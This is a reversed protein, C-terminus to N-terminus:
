HEEHSKTGMNAEDWKRSQADFNGNAGSDRSEPLERSVEPARQRGNQRTSIAPCYSVVVGSM